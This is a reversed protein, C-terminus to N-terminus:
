LGIEALAGTESLRIAGSFGKSGFLFFAGDPVEDQTRLTYTASPTVREAIRSNQRKPDLRSAVFIGSIKLFTDSGKGIPMESGRLTRSLKSPMRRKVRAGGTESM